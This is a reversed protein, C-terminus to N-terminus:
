RRALGGATAAAKWAGWCRTLVLTRSARKSMAASLSAREARRRREAAERAAAGLAQLGQRLLSRRLRHLLAATAAAATARRDRAQSAAVTAQVLQCSCPPPFFSAWGCCLNPLVPPPSGSPVAQFSLSCTSPRQDISPCCISTGLVSCSTNFRKRISERPLHLRERQQLLKSTKKRGLIGVVLSIARCSFNDVRRQNEQDEGFWCGVASDDQSDYNACARAM